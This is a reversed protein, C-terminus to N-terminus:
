PKCNLQDFAWNEGIAMGEPLGAADVHRRFNVTPTFSVMVNGYDLLDGIKSKFVSKPAGCHSQFGAPTSLEGSQLESILQARTDRDQKASIHAMAYLFIVFGGGLLLAWQLGSLFPQKQPTPVAIASAVLPLGCNSCKLAGPTLGAGCASCILTM